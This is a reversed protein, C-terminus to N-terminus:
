INNFLRKQMENQITLYYYNSLNNIDELGGYKNVTEKIQGMTFNMKNVIDDTTYHFINWGISGLINDRRKDKKVDEKETHYTDGDCEIGLNREKCFLAFDLIFTQNKKSRIDYQREASIKESKLVKWMKEELPSELFLDNIEKAYKLKDYTTCIFLIRRHRKSEIPQPIEQLKDFEIKYYERESKTKDFDGPLLEKRKAVTIRKVEGFWKLMFAEENFIKTQYLAILKVSGDKVNLPTTKKGLPIRYWHETSAIYYDSKNNLIAILVDKNEKKQKM